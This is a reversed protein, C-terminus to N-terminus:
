SWLNLVGMVPATRVKRKGEQDQNCRRRFVQQPFCCPQLWVTKSGQGSLVWHGYTEPSKQTKRDRTLPDPWLRINCFAKPLSYVGSMRRGLLRTHWLMPWRSYFATALNMVGYQLGM